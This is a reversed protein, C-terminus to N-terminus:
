AEEGLARLQDAQYEHQLTDVVTQLYYWEGEFVSREVSNPPLRPTTAQDNVCGTVPVTSASLLAVALLIWYAGRM